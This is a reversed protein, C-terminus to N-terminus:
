YFQGEVRQESLVTVQGKARAVIRLLTLGPYSADVPLRFTIQDFQVACDIMYKSQSEQSVKCAAPNALTKDNGRGARAVHEAFGTVRVDGCGPMATVDVFQQYHAEVKTLTVVKASEPWTKPVSLSLKASGLSVKPAESCPPECADVSEAFNQGNREVTSTCATSDLHAEGLYAVAANGAGDQVRLGFDVAIGSVLHDRMEAESIGFAAPDFVCWSQEDVVVDQENAFQAATAVVNAACSVLHAEEGVRVAAYFRATVRPCDERMSVAYKPHAEGMDFRIQTRGDIQEINSVVGAGAKTGGPYEFLFSPPAQDFRCARPLITRGCGDRPDVRRLIRTFDTKELLETECADADDRVGDRDGDRRVDPTPNPTVTPTVCGQLAQAVAAVLEDITVQRDGNRDGSQCGAVDTADLAVSVLLVLENIKVEGSGDCDGACAIQGTGESAAVRALISVLCLASLAGCRMWGVVTNMATM